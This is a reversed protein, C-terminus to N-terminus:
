RKSLERKAIGAKLGEVFLLLVSLESDQFAKLDDILAEIKMERQKVTM